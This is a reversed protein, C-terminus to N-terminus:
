IALISKHFTKLQPTFMKHYGLVLSVIIHSFPLTIVGRETGIRTLMTDSHKIHKQSTLVFEEPRIM